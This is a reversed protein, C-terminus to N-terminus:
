DIVFPPYEPLDGRLFRALLRAQVHPVAGLLVEEGTVPHKVIQRRREQWDTLVTKRTTDNMRVAGGEERVFGDAKVQKRNVLALAARDAVAARLEEMLDLGLSPRGPRDRHLFGVAPDLGTALLAATVEHLLVAYLFSLLANLPDRPPRRERTDMAFGYEGDRILRNFVGFYVHAGEGEYGRASDVSEARVAGKIARDIAEAAQRLAPADDDPADRASRLLLRRCNVLKGVVCARAVTLTKDQDAAAAYQDKRLLSGGQWPGEVRALFRGGETLFSVGIGREALVGLAAVSVSTAGFCVVSGVHHLPVRLKEEADVRVVLNEHDRALFAGPSTVYLTNALDAAM